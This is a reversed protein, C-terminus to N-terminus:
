FDNTNEIYKISCMEGFGIAKENQKKKIEDNRVAHMGEHYYMYFGHTESRM